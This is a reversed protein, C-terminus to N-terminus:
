AGKVGLLIRNMCPKEIGDKDKKTGTCVIVNTGEIYRMEGGCRFCKRVKIEKPQQKKEKLGWAKGLDSLSNLKRSTAM